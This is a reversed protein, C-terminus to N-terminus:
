RSKGLRRNANKRCESERHRLEGHVPKTPTYRGSNMPASQRNIYTLQEDLADLYRMSLRAKRKAAFWRLRVRMPDVDTYGGEGSGHREHVDHRGNDVRHPHLLVGSM